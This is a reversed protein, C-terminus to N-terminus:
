IHMRIFYASFVFVVGLYRFVQNVAKNHVGGYGVTIELM